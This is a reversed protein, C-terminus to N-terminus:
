PWDAARRIVVPFRTIHRASSVRRPATGRRSARLGHNAITQGHLHLLQVSRDRNKSNYPIKHRLRRIQGGAFLQDALNRAMRLSECSGMDM